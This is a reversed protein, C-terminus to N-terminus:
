VVSKRDQLTWVGDAKEYCLRDHLRNPRGQWFEYYDPQLRFGGWFEPKALVAKDAVQDQLAQFRGQLTERSDIVGSQPTSIHAAIQSDRPRKRYYAASEEEPIKEVKGSHTNGDYTIGSGDLATEGQIWVAPGPIYYMKTKTNGEVYNSHFEDIGQLMYKKEMEMAEALEEDYVTNDVAIFGKVKEPYNQVFNLGYVGSISHVLLVCQKIGMTDLAANLESNINDVTRDTAAVDSLGYGFPEVIVINFSEDLSQALPKFYIHPSPVGLAPMMVLTTKGEDAFTEGSADLKGYLALHMNNGKVTIYKSAYGVQTAGMAYVMNSNGVLFAFLMAITVIRSIQKKYRRM